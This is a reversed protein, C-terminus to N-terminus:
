YADAFVVYDGFNHSTWRHGDAVKWGIHNLAQDAEELSLGEPWETRDLIDCVRWKGDIHSWFEEVILFEGNIAKIMYRYTYM